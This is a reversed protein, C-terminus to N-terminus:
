CYSCLQLVLRRKKVDSFTLEEAETYKFVLNVIKCLEARTLPNNPRFTGDEYGNLIGANVLKYIAVGSSANADVDSFTITKIEEVTTKATDSASSAFVTVSSIVLAFVIFMSLLKKM